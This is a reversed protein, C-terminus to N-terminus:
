EYNEDTLIRARIRASQVRIWASQVRIRDSQVRIRVNQVSIRFIQIRFRVCYPGPDSCVPVLDSYGPGPDSCDQCQVSCDGGPDQCYPGQRRDMFNTEFCRTEDGSVNQRFFTKPDM